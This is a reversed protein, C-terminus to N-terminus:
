LRIRELSINEKNIDMLVYSEYDGGRDFGASGPNLIRVGDVLKNFYVHTHGFLIMEADADKATYLLNSYGFNVREKHGHTIIIKHNELRILQKWPTNEANYDNNGRVVFMPLNLEARIANADDVMDGLHIILELDKIKKASDIFNKIRFHTDSVIAVKM